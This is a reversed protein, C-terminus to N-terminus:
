RAQKANRTSFIGIAGAILLIAGLIRMALAHNKPRNIASDLDARISKFEAEAKALEREHAALAEATPHTAGHSLDHLKVSAAQFQQAQEQSWTARSLSSSPWVLSLLILGIGAIIAIASINSGRSATPQSSVPM